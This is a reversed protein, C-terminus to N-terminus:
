KRILRLEGADSRNIELVTPDAISESIASDKINLTIPYCREMKLTTLPPLDTSRSGDDDEINVTQMLKTKNTLTVEYAASKPRGFLQVAFYTLGDKTAVGVGTETAYQALINERHGPSNIWGQTFFEALDEATIARSDRHYAINERIACYAYNAAKVRDAPTRGDARHGYKGTKAMFEAFQQAAQTLHVNSPLAPLSHDRRFANTKDVILATAQAVNLETTVSKISEEAANSQSPHCFIAIALILISFLRSM